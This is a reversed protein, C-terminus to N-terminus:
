PQVPVSQGYGIDDIYVIGSGGTTANKAGVGITVKKVKSLSVGNLSSMPITWRTWNAATAATDSTATASKGANDTVTLYMAAADNFEAANVIAGQWTGTVAGTAAISEFQFTRQETAVHSTVCIGILVPDAMEIVTTGVVSWAKGDASTYGTFTSGSREIKVWGPVAVVAASDASASAGATTARYQFSAGNVGPTTIAMMAQMSNGNVSDRIMVGGKAWTNTGTGTSPV